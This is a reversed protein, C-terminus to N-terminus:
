RLTAEVMRQVYSGRLEESHLGVTLYAQHTRVDDLAILYDLIVSTIDYLHMTCGIKLGLVIHGYVATLNLARYM